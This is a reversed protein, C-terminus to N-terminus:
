FSKPKFSEAFTAIRSDNCAAAPGVGTLPLVSIPLPFRGNPAQPENTICRKKAPGYRM